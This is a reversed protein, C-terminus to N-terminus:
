WATTFGAGEDVIAAIGNEGYRDILFPALHGAGERGSIEEDFGFSMVITRKPKFDAALFLEITEMIAILQNKCDSSGRGWIFKGDYYGSFPPHTWADVTDDPVPVVDQHAMLLLPKLSEDSGQWTYLLGHTNVKEFKLDTHMRPFTRELFDAFPYMVDWRKDEGIKGMDDFSQTAIQIAGSHRLISENQFTASSLFEWMRDLGDNDNPPFLPDPQSCLSSLGVKDFPAPTLYALLPRVLYVTLSGFVLFSLLRRSITKQPPKLTQQEVPLPLSKEM